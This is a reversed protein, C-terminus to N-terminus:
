KKYGYRILKLSEFQVLGVRPAFIRFEVASLDLKSSGETQLCNRFEGAATKVTKSLSIVEARDMVIGPSVEQYYRMGVKPNGPMALGPKGGNKYAMWTGTHDVIKGNEYTDVAEGFIFVDGTAPDIAYFDKAVEALKGEQEEKEEVVRTVVGGITQTQNLVTITLKTDKSALVIEFGPMLVFYKSKGTHSLKRGALNFNEQFDQSLVVSGLALLAILILKSKQM